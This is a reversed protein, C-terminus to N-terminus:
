GKRLPEVYPTYVKAEERTATIAAELYIWGLVPLAFILASKAEGQILAIVASVNVVFYFIAAFVYAIDRTKGNFVLASFLCLLLGLLWLPLSFHNMQIFVPSLGWRDPAILLALGPGIM